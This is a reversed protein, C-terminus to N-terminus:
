IDQYKIINDFQYKKTNKNKTLNKEIEEWIYENDQQMQMFVKATAEADGRARHRDEVKIGFHNTVADLNRKKLKPYLKRCLNVTCMYNIDLTVDVRKFEETVFGVDFAANHAVITTNEILDKIEYNAEFFTPKNKVHKDEIGTFKSIYKPIKTNPNILCEYINIIKGKQVSIIAIDIVRNRTPSLGTTEVDIVSYIKSM